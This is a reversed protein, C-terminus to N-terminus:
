EIVRLLVVTVNDPGGAQRAAEILYHAQSPLSIPNKIVEALLPTHVVGHLGDTSLLVRLGATLPIRVTEVRLPQGIGVAMTLMHRMPHKRIQEEALGLRRGVEEVWTQDTTLQELRGDRIAYARSDGVNAILLENGAELAAVLTTGMGQRSSDAQAAEHVRLNAQEFASNLVAPTRDSTSRVAQEIAEVAIHSAVEGAAAGGMGDAVVYLGIDPAILFADENNARVCGCDSQGFAELM